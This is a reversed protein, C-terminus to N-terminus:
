HAAVAAIALAAASGLLPVAFVFIRNFFLAVILRRCSRLLPLLLFYIIFLFSPLLL